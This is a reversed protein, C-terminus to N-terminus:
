SVPLVYLQSMKGMPLTLSIRVARPLAHQTQSDIPWEKQWRGEQDLYDFWCEAVQNLLLRRHLLTDAAADVSPWTERYLNMQQCAYGTRMLNAAGQHTFVIRRASGIFAPEDKGQTNRVPRNVAQEVDRSLLLLAMQLQRFQEAKSETVSQATIVTHLASTLMMSVLTFIFLAILVELLTFGCNQIKSPWASLPSSAKQLGDVTM